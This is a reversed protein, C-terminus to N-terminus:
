AIYTFIGSTRGYKIIHQTHTHTDMKIIFAAMIFQFCLCCLVVGSAVHLLDVSLMYVKKFLKHVIFDGARWKSNDYSIVHKVLIFLLCNEWISSRRSPTSPTFHLANTHPVWLDHHEKKKQRNGGSGGDGGM